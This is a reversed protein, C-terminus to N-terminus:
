AVLRVALQAAPIAFAKGFAAAPYSPNPNHSEGAFEQDREPPIHFFANQGLASLPFRGSSFISNTERSTNQAHTHAVRQAHPDGRQSGFYLHPREQFAEQAQRSYMMPHRTRSRCPYFSTWPRKRSVERLQWSPRPFVVLSQPTLSLLSM